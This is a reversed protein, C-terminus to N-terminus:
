VQLAFREGRRLHGLVHQHLLEFAAVVVLLIVIEFCFGGFRSGCRVGTTAVAMAVSRGRFLTRRACCHVVLVRLDFGQSLLQVVVRELFRRLPMMVAFAFPATRHPGLAPM